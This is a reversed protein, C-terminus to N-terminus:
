TFASAITDKTQFLMCVSVRVNPSRLTDQTKAARCREWIQLANQGRQLTRDGEEDWGWWFWLM